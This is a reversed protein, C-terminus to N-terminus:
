ALVNEVVLFGNSLVFEFKDSMLNKSVLLNKLIFISFVM